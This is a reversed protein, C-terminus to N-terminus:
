DFAIVSFGIRKLDIGFGFHFDFVVKPEVGADFQFFHFFTPPDFDFVIRHVRRVQNCIFNINM